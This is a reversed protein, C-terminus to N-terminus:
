ITNTVKIPPTTIIISGDVSKTSNNAKVLTSSVCLIVIIAIVKALFMSKKM